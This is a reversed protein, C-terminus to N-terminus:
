EKFVQLRFIIIIIVIIIVVVVVVISRWKSDIAGATKKKRCTGNNRPPHAQRRATGINTVLPACAAPGYFRSESLGTVSTISRRDDCVRRRSNSGSCTAPRVSDDEVKNKTPVVTWVRGDLGNQRTALNYNTKYFASLQNWARISSFAASGSLSPNRRKYQEGYTILTTLWLPQSLHHAPSAFIFFTDYKKYRFLDSPVTVPFVRTCM